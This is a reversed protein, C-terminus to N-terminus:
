GYNMMRLVERDEDTVDEMRSKGLPKLILEQYLYEIFLDAGEKAYGKASYFMNLKFRKSDVNFVLSISACARELGRVDFYIFKSYGFILDDFWSIKMNSFGDADQEFAREHGTSIRVIEDIADYIRSLESFLNDTSIGPLADYSSFSPSKQFIVYESTPWDESALPMFMYEHGSISLFIDDEFEYFVPFVNDGCVSKVLELLDSM